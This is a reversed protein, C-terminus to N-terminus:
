SFYGLKPLSIHFDFKLFDYPISYQASIRLREICFTSIPRRCLCIYTRYTYVFFLSQRAIWISWNKQRANQFLGFLAGYNCFLCVQSPQQGSSDKKANRRTDVVKFM